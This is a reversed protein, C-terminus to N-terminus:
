PAGEVAVAYPPAAHLAGFGIRRVGGGERYEVVLEIRASAGAPAASWRLAYRGVVSEGSAPAAVQMLSDLTSSALVVAEERAAAERALRLATGATAAAGLVGVAFVVLAVIVEVLTLGPRARAACHTVM